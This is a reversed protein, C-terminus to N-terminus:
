REVLARMMEFRVDWIDMIGRLTDEAETPVMLVGSGILEAGTEALMGTAGGRGRLLYHFRVRKSRSFGKLSYRFITVPAYGLLEATRKGKLLSVGEAIITRALPEEGLIFSRETLATVHFDMGTGLGDLEDALSGVLDLVDGERADEVIIGVDIDGPNTTSRAFSGFLVVDVVGPRKM